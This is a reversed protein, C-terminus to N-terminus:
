IECAPHLRRKEQLYAAHASRADSFTGLYRSEGNLKIRAVFGRDVYRSVGLFGTRNDARSCRQNQLNLSRTSSRLNRWKNDAKVGNRHDIESSPLGGTMWLWALHHAPYKKGDARIVVYGKRSSGAAVGGRTFIGIEHDYHLLEKLREQTLVM